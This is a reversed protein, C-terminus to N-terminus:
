PSIIVYGNSEKVVRSPAAQIPAKTKICWSWMVDNNDHTTYLSPLEYIRLLLVIQDSLPESNIWGYGAIFIFKTEVNMVGRRLSPRFPNPDKIYAKQLKM